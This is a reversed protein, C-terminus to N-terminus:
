IAVFTVGFLSLNLCLTVEFAEGGWFVYFHYLNEELLSLSQVRAFWFAVIAPGADEPSPM